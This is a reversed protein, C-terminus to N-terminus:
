VEKNKYKLRIDEIEGRAVQEEYEKMATEFDERQADTVRSKPKDGDIPLFSDISKPLKKTDLHSGIMSYFAVLRTHKWREREMRQWAFCKILYENWGMDFFANM